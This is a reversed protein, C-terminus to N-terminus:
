EKKIVKKFFSRGENEIRLIYNGDPIMELDVKDEGKIKQSFLLKGSMGFVSILTEGTLGRIQFTGSVPNPYISFEGEKIERSSVILSDAGSCDEDINNGPIDTSNPNISLDSDNCDVGSAIDRNIYGPTQECSIVSDTRSIFNDNDKDAYYVSAPLVKVEVVSYNSAPAYAAGEQATVDYRIQHIGAGALSPDFTDGNVGPGTFKGGATGTTILKVPSDLVCFVSKSLTFGPDPLIVLTLSAKVVVDNVNITIFGSCSSSFPWAKVNAKFTITADFCGAELPTGSIIGCGNAPPTYEKENPTCTLGDPLKSFDLSHVKLVKASIAKYWLNLTNADLCGNSVSFSLYDEYYSNVKGELLSSDCIGGWDPLKDLCDVPQCQPFSEKVLFLLIIIATIKMIGKM